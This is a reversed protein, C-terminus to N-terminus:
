RHMVASNRPVPHPRQCCPNVKSPLVSWVEVKSTSYTKVKGETLTELMKRGVSFSFYSHCCFGKATKLKGVMPQSHWTEKGKGAPAFSNIHGCIQLLWAIRSPGSLAPLWGCFKLIQRLFQGFKAEKLRGQGLGCIGQEIVSACMYLWHLPLNGLRSLQGVDLSM